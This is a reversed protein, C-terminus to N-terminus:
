RFIIRRFYDIPNSGAIAEHGPKNIAEIMKGIVLFCKIECSSCGKAFEHFFAVCSRLLSSVYFHSVFM